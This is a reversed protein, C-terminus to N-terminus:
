EEDAQPRRAGEKSYNLPATRCAAPDRWRRPFIENIARELAQWELLDKRLNSGARMLYPYIAPMDTM